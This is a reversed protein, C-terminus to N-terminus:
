GTTEVCLFQATLCTIPALCAMPRRKLKDLRARCRDADDLAARNDLAVGFSFEIHAVRVRARRARNRPLKPALNGNDRAGDLSFEIHAVHVRARRARSRPLKPALNGSSLFEALPVATRPLYACLRLHVHGDHM